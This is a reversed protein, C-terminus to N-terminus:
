INLQVVLWNSSKIAPVLVTWLDDLGIQEKPYSRYDAYSFFLFDFDFDVM